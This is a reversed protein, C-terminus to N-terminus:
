RGAIAQLMDGLSFQRQTELLAPPQMLFLAVTAAVMITLVVITAVPALPRFEEAATGSRELIEITESSSNNRMKKALRSRRFSQSARFAAITQFPSAGAFTNKAVM